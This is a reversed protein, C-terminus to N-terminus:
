KTFKLEIFKELIEGFYKMQDLFNLKSLRSKLGKEKVLIADENSIPSVIFDNTDAPSLIEDVGDIVKKNCPSLTQNVYSKKNAGKCRFRLGNFFSIGHCFALM